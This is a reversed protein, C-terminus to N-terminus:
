APQEPKPPKKGLCKVCIYYNGRPEGPLMMVSVGGIVLVTGQNSLVYREVARYLQDVPDRGTIPLKKKLKTSMEEKRGLSPSHPTPKM